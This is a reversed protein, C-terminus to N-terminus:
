VKSSNDTDLISIKGVYCSRGNSVIQAGAKTLVEIQTITEKDILQGPLVLPIGPPYCWLYDASVKNEALSLEVNKKSKSFLASKISTSMVSQSLSFKCDFFEAKTELRSDIELLADAFRTLSAITDGQGTMAIIYSAFASEIEIRYEKRLIEALEFGSITGKTQIVLKSNDYAYAFDKTPEFLRLHELGLLRNRCLSISETWVNVACSAQLSDLCKSLGSMLVYSPSSTEFIDIYHELLACDVGKGYILMISTQTPCALTKHAGKIVIDAESCKPFADSLGLHAGHSEDLIVLANHNHAIKCIGAVDSVVGEYTPSTLVVTKVSPNAELVAEVADPTISGAFDVGQKFNPIISVPLLDLLEIAHWVSLHCNRAVAITKADVCLAHIASLILGTSGNVSIYAHPAHWINCAVESIHKITGKPNHLNDFGDIETIDEYLAPSILAHNRKHGPMHMPLIDANIYANLKNHLSDENQM